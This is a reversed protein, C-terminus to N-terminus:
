INNSVDTENAVQMFRWMESEPIDFTTKFKMWFKYTGNRTGNEVSSYTSRDVGIREAMEAQSIDLRVRFMKLEIRKGM